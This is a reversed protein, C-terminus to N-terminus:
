TRSSSSCNRSSTVTLMISMVEGPSFSAHDFCVVQHESRDREALEKGSIVHQELAPYVVLEEGVSHRALEWVFQNQARVQEDENAPNMIKNYWGELERHDTKIEESIRSMNAASAAFLRATPHPTINKICNNPNNKKRIQRIFTLM